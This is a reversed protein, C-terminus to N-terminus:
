DFVPDVSKLLVYSLRLSVFSVCFVFAFCAIMLLGGGLVGKQGRKNQQPTHFTSRMYEMLPTGTPFPVRKFAPEFCTAM